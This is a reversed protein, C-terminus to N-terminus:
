MCTWRHCAKWSIIVVFSVLVSFETLSLGPCSVHCVVRSVRCVGPGGECSRVDPQFCGSDSLFM